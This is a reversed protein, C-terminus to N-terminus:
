GGYTENPDWARFSLNLIGFFGPYFVTPVRNSFSSILGFYYRSPSENNTALIFYVRINKQRDNDTDKHIKNM